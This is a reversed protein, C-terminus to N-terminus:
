TKPDKSAEELESIVRDIKYISTQFFETDKRKINFYLANASIQCIDIGITTLPNDSPEKQTGGKEVVAKAIARPEAKNVPQTDM